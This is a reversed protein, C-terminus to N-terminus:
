QAPRNPAQSAPRTTTAPEPADVQQASPNTIKTVRRMVTSFQSEDMNENSEIKIEFSGDFKDINIEQYKEHNLGPYVRIARGDLSVMVKKPIPNRLTFGDKAYEEKEEAIVHNMQSLIYDERGIAWAYPDRNGSCGPAVFLIIIFSTSFRM